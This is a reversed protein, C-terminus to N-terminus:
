SQRRKQDLSRNVKIGILVIGLVLNVMYLSRTPLLVRFLAELATKKATEDKTAFAQAQLAVANPHLVMMILGAILVM